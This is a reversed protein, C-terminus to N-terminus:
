KVNITLIVTTDPAGISIIKIMNTTTNVSQIAFGYKAFLAPNDNILEVSSASSLPTLWAKDVSKTYPSVGLEDNWDQVDVGISATLGKDEKNGLETTVANQSMVDTTSSGTTQVVTPGANVTGWTGDGKLYKDKDSTTPAPVLGAAGATNSTAGTFNSYTTDQNPKSAIAGLTGELSKKYVSAGLIAPLNPSTATVEFNTQDEYSTANYLAELQSILTTDTIETDTPTTLAYYFTVDNNSLWTKFGAPSSTTNYDPDYCYIASGSHNSAIGIKLSYSDNANTAIFHTSKFSPITSNTAPPVYQGSLGGTYMRYVNTTGTDSYNWNLDGLSSKGIEKHVYWKDGSKYIKDQYDGIKALEISGLNVTYSQSQYPQFPTTPNDITLILDTYGNESQTSSSKCKFGYFLYPSSGLDNPVVFSIENGSTSTTVTGTRSSGSADMRGIRIDDGTFNARFRITSGQHNTLDISKFLVIPSVEAGESVTCKIGNSLSSLTIRTPNSSYIYTLDSEDCINKGTIAIAQSGTVVDVDQPYDPNPSAIGGCYPEYSTPTSGAELQIINPLTINVEDGSTWGRFALRYREGTYDTAVTTSTQGALIVFSHFGGNTDIVSLFVDYSTPQPISFTYTGAPLPQSFYYTSTATSNTSSTTGSGSITGNTITWDVGNNSHTEAPFDILNKGTLTIQETDGKLELDNLKAEITGNLTLESGAGTVTEGATFYDAPYIDASIVGSTIDIGDGATYTTDTASIENNADITINSGATLKPQITSTDVSFETGTLDLGTGATYTTDTASIVNQDSININAGATYTAKDADLVGTAPNITLNNGVKIGGLTSSSAVPLEYQSGVGWTGDGKLFKNEDGVKPAPVLGSTGDTEGDTGVFDEYTKVEPINTESSMTQGNYKPRNFLDNFNLSGVNNVDDFDLVFEDNINDNM